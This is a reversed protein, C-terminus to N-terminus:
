TGTRPREEVLWATGDGGAGSASWVPGDPCINESVQCRVVAFHGDTPETLVLFRGTATWLTQFAGDVDVAGGLQSDTGALILRQTGTAAESTLEVGAITGAGTEFSIGVVGCSDGTKAPGQGANGTPGLHLISWCVGDGQNLVALGTDPDTADATGYGKIRSITTGGPSWTAASAAAGDGTDLVVVDGAYGIARIFTDFTASHLVAGTEVSAEILESHTSDATTNAYTVRSGDASVAFGDIRSVLLRRSGQDPLLWLETEAGPRGGLVLVGSPTAVPPQAATTEPIVGLVEASLGQPGQAYRYVVGDLFVMAPLPGTGSGGAPMDSATPSPSPQTSESPVPGPTSPEASPTGSGIPVVAGHDPGNVLRAGAVAGGAVIVSLVTALAVSNRVLRRRATRVVAPPAKSPPDAASAMDELLHRVDPELDDPRDPM